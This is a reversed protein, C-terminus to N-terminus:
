ERPASGPRENRQKPGHAELKGELTSGQEGGANSYFLSERNQFMAALFQLRVVLSGGAAPYWMYRDRDTLWDRPELEGDFPPRVRQMWIVSYHRLSVQPRSQDFRIVSQHVGREPKTAWDTSQVYRIVGNELDISQIVASHKLRGDSGRFLIIDAPRLNEIRDDITDTYGSAPDYFWLGVRSKVQSQSMRWRESLMRSIEMGYNQAISDHIYFSFGSCDVGASAVAYLYNYVDAEALEADSRRELIRTPTGLYSGAKLSEILVQDRSLSYSQRELDFIIVKDGPSILANVYEAFEQTALVSDIYPWLQEPTGKGDMHFVQSYGPGGEREYNLGFPLRLTLSKGAIRYSRFYRRFTTEILQEVKLEEPTKTRYRSSSTVNALEGDVDKPGQGASDPGDSAIPEERTASPPRPMTSEVTSLPEQLARSAKGTIEKLFTVSHHLPRLLQWTIEKGDIRRQKFGDTAGDSRSGTPAGVISERLGIWETTSDRGDRTYSYDYRSSVGALVSGGICLVFILIRIKGDLMRVDVKTKVKETGRV